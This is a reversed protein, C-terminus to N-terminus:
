LKDIISRIRGVEKQKNLYESYSELSQEILYDYYVIRANYPRLTEAIEEEEKSNAGLRKGLVILIEIAENERKVSVLCKTLADKYKKAQKGLSFQDVKYSPDYRKLEVIIHKGAATRYKIDLRGKKEEKTLSNTIQKFEKEVRTEMIETGTTARELSPHLLWLNNFLYKQLLKEKDNIALKKNFERIVSVRESAIDYYLNAEIDSLDNFIFSLKLDDPNTIKELEHLSDRLKLKEFAMIGQKYLEKKKEYVDAKDFHMTEIAAFLKKAHMKRSDTILSDFWQKLIPNFKEAKEVAEEEAVQKRLETWVKQISKLLKYVHAQLERYRSDEENIKQRSTTAIDEDEDYDLFDAKIEGILYTAYIGGENFSELIDEQAMKGRCIVSIKNNNTGDIDLDGAENVAGIWGSIKYGKGNDLNGNLHNVRKFKFEKEIIGEDNDIFWIFQIKNFFDRDKHTIPKKNVSVSFNHTKGIISFRRALKKRLFNETQNVNKKLDRIIIKTGKTIKIKTASMETPYYIGDESNKIQDIIDKKRLLFGSKENKKTLKNKKITQIEIENAISFLSLKGIGKRGMVPRKLKESYAENNERRQYGVYLFKSNIDEVTMGHGNDTITIENNGINIEVKLADADYANAVVESLVSPINSYLNMGLHNLVNLSMRMKFKKVAAM